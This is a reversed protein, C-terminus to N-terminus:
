KGITPTLLENIYIISFTSTARPCEMVNMM